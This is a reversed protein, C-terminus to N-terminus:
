VHIGFVHVKISDYFSRSKLRVAFHPARASLVKLSVVSLVEFDVSFKSM